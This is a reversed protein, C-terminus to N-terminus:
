THNRYPSISLILPSHVLSVCPYSYFVVTFLHLFLFLSLHLGSCDCTLSLTSVSEIDASLLNVSHSEYLTKKARVRVCLVYTRVMAAGILGCLLWAIHQWVLGLIRNRLTKSEAKSIVVETDAPSLTLVCHPHPHSHSLSFPYPCLSLSLSLPLFPLTM